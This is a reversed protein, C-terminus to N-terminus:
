DMQGYEFKAEIGNEKLFSVIEEQGHEWNLSGQCCSVKSASIIMRKEAKRKGKGLYYVYIGAGVVCSGSDGFEQFNSECKAKWLTKADQVIGKFKESSVDVEQYATVEFGTYYECKKM